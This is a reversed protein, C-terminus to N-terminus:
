QTPKNPAAPATKSAPTATTRINGKGDLNGARDMTIVDTREQGVLRTGNQEAEPFVKMIMTGAKDDYIAEGCHCVSPKPGRKTIVVTGKGNGRAWAKEIPASEESNATDNSKPSPQNPKTPDLQPTPAAPKPALPPKADTDATPLQGEKFLVELEDCDIDMTPSRLRVKGHFIAKNAAKEFKVHQADITTHNLDVKSQTKPLEKPPPVPVNSFNSGQPATPVAAPASTSLLKSREREYVERAQSAKTEATPNQPPAGPTGAPKQAMSFQYLVTCAAITIFRPNM